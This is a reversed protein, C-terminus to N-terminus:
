FKLGFTVNFMNNSTKISARNAPDVGYLYYDETMSYNTFACDVFYDGTRYGIGLSALTGNGKNLDLKYPSGFIGFGARYSIPGM